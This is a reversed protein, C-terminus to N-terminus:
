VLGPVERAVQGVPVDLEEPTKIVLDLNAPEADFESFDLCRECLVRGYPLSDDQNLFVSRSLLPQHGIHGGLSLGAGGGVLQAIKQLVLQGLM